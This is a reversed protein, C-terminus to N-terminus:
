LQQCRSVTGTRTEVAFVAVVDDYGAGRGIAGGDANCKAYNIVKIVDPDTISIAAASYSLNTRGEFTVSNNDTYYTRKAQALVADKKNTAPPTDFPFEGSHNLGWRSVTQLISTADQNRQNNRGNRQLTPIAMMILMLILSAIALVIMTEVITFGKQEEEAVRM